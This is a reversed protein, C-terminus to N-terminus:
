LIQNITGVLSCRDFQKREIPVHHLLDPLVGSGGLRVRGGTVIRARRTLMENAQAVRLNQSAINRGRRRSQMGAQLLKGIGAFGAHQKSLNGVLLFAIERNALRPAVGVIPKCAPADRM